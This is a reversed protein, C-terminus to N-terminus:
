ANAFIYYPIAITPQVNNHAGGGGANATTSVVNATTGAGLAGGGTAQILYNGGNGGHNHSPIETLSLTHTQSGGNGGPTTAWSPLRGSAGLTPSADVCALVRGRLDPLRFETSLEGGTNYLTGLAAFLSAYTTRSVTRGDCLLWGAPASATAIASITGVPNTAAVFASVLSRVWATDPIQNSNETLPLAPNDRRPTVLLPNNLLNNLQTVTARQELADRVAGRSPADTQGLWTTANYVATNGTTGAGTAGRAALVIWPLGSSPNDGLSSGYLSSLWYSGGDWQVVSGPSYYQLANWTGKQAFVAQGLNAAFATDAALRQVIASKSSDSEDQAIGSPVLQSWAIPTSSDPVKATFAPAWLRNPTVSTDWVEFLYSVREVQSPELTLTTPGTPNLTVTIPSPAVSSGPRNVWYQPTVRIFGPTLPAGSANRLDATITTM